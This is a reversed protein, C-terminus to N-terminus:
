YKELYEKWSDPYEEQAKRKIYDPIPTARYDIGKSKLFDVIQMKYKYEDTDFDLFAERLVDVLYMPKGKDNPDQKEVPISYDPRYFIPRKYDAGSELLYYSIEYRKQMISESFASQGFENQYNVDAGKSVLFRVLDILGSKSAEILPTARTSNGKKREGTEIDNVNAGNQILIEVFQIDYYKSGCAEIIASTGDFTNHINVDARKELLYRFPKIQQNTITLMLLTNGFKPEQYNILKPDKSVIENIKKEDEDQVAKALDWAPTNQFLRYDMGLLDNKDVITERNSCNVFFIMSIIVIVKKM